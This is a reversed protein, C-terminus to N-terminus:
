KGKLLFSPWISELVAKMDVLAQVKQLMERKEKRKVYVERPVSILFQQYFGDSLNNRAFQAVYYPQMFAFM